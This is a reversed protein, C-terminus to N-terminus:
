FLLLRPNGIYFIKDSIYKLFIVLFLKIFLHSFKKCYQNTGVKMRAANALKEMINQIVNASVVYSKATQLVNHDLRFTFDSDLNNYVFNILFM